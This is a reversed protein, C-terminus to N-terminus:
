IRSDELKEGVHWRVQAYGGSHYLSFIPADYWMLSNSIPGSKSRNETEQEPYAWATSPWYWPLNTWYSPRHNASCLRLKSQALSLFCARTGTYGCNATAAIILLWDLANIQVDQIIEMQYWVDWPLSSLFVTVLRGSQSSQSVGTDGWPAPFFMTKEQDIYVHGRHLKAPRIFVTFSKSIANHSM